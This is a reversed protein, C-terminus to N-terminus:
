TADLSSETEPLDWEARVDEWRLAGVKGPEERLRPLVETAIERDELDELWDLLLEWAEIDLQVAAPKGERNVVFQVSKLIELTSM